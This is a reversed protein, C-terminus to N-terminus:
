RARRGKAERWILFLIGGVYGLQMLIICIFSYYISITISKYHFWCLIFFVFTVCLMRIYIGPARMLEIFRKM